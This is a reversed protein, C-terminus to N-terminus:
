QTNLTVTKIIGWPQQDSPSIEESKCGHTGTNLGDPSDQEENDSVMYTPLCVCMGALFLAFPKGPYHLVRSKIFGNWGEWTYQSLSLHKTLCAWKLQM